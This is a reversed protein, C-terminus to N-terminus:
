EDKEKVQKWVTQECLKRGLRDPVTIVQGRECTQGTAAVRIQVHNGVYRIKM